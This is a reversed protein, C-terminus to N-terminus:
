KIKQTIYPKIIGRNIFYAEMENNISEDFEIGKDLMNQFANMISEVFDLHSNILEYNGWHRLDFSEILKVQNNPNFVVKREMERTRIQYKICRLKGSIPGCLIACMDFGEPVGEKEFIFFSKDLMEIVQSFNKKKLRDSPTLFLDIENNFFEVASDNRGTFGMLFKDKVMNVKSIRGDIGSDMVFKTDGCLVAFKEGLALM